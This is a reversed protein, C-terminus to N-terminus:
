NTVYVAVPEKNHLVFKYQKTYGLLDNCCLMHVSYETWISTCFRVIYSKVTL